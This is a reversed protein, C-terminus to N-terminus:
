LARASELCLQALSCLDREQGPDSLFSARLLLVASAPSAM